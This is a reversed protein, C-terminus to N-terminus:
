IGGTSFAADGGASLVLDIFKLQAPERDSGTYKWGAEKMERAWFQGFKQGVMEPTIIVPKIGVYDSSKIKKNLAPTDNCLGYRVLRGGEDFLAGVNNRWPYIGAKAASLIMRQSVAAESFGATAPPAYPEYGAGLRNMLDLVGEPHVGWDRAWQHLIDHM